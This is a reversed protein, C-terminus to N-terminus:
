SDQKLRKTSKSEFEELNHHKGTKKVKPMGSSSYELFTEHAGLKIYVNIKV